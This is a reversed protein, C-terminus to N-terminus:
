RALLDVGLKEFGLWMLILTAASIIFVLGLALLMPDEFLSKKAGKVKNMGIVIGTTLSQNTKDDILGYLQRLMEDSQIRHDLYFAFPEGWTWQCTLRGDLDYTQAGILKPNDVGKETNKIKDFVELFSNEDVSYMHTEFKGYPMKVICRVKDGYMFDKILPLLEISARTKM